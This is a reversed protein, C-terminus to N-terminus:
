EYRLAVMPDIRAARRAPLWAALVTVAVLVMSAAGLLAPDYLTIGYYRAWQVVRVALLALPLGLGVGLGALLLAERLVPGRIDAPRAGLAMRIGIEGTRQVMHYAMLGYVGLCSLLLAVAALGAGLAAYTRLLAITADCLQAQTTVTLPLLPDLGAVKRRVAPMLNRPPGATRLAFWMESVPKQRYSFYVLPRKAQGSSFNNYCADGCVGVIRCDRGDARFIRGIPSTEGLVSRCFAQNVVVARVPDPTDLGDFGRGVLLPIGLTELFSDSISLCCVRQEEASREPVSVHCFDWGAGIHCQDAFGAIRVGPLAALTRGVEEYLRTRRPEEYGAQAANLHGVLLNRPDFGLDVRYQNILNHALLGTGTALMMSLAIQVVVLVRGARLRPVGRVRANRLRAAPDIRADFLGPVLGILLATALVCGLTFVLVVPDLRVEFRAYEPTELSFVIPVLDRVIDRGWSAFLVGLVGGALSLGLGEVLSLRALRWRGAGLAARVAMEQARTTNRALMLGALNVCAILLLLGGVEMWERLIRGMGERALVPGHRGDVLRLTPPNGESKSTEDWRERMHQQWLVDLAAQVQVASSEPPLRLMIQLWYADPSDLSFDPLFRPQFSLPICVGPRDGALPGVYEPPLVGIITFAAGNLMLTEGLVHPDLGFHREWTRHTLVVVPAAGPRDDAPMITRGLPVRVGYGEFFSGTVMLARAGFGHDRAVATLTDTEAFAFIESFGVGQARFLCYTPFSFMGYCRRGPSIPRSEGGKMLYERLRPGSWNLVWLQHPARVPLERLLVANLTSFLVTNVGIGLALSFVAVAAFGPHTAWLRLGCRIDQGLARM